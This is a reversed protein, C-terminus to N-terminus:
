KRRPVIKNYALAQGMWYNFDAEKQIGEPGILVFGKLVRGGFAMQHCGKRQLAAAYIDPNIRCMLEDKMVGVCMKEDIMFTLGGMMKKEAVAPHGALAQRVRVALQENYPM